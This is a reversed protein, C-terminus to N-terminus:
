GKKREFLSKLYRANEVAFGQFDNNFYVFVKKINKPFRGIDEKLGEIEKKSYKGQNQLSGHKRIYIFDATFVNRLIDPKDSIVFAIKHKKLIQYIEEELWSSDRFEIASAPKWKSKEIVENYFILFDELREANKKFNPPLQILVVALKEELKQINDLFLKLFPRSKSDLILRKRHTIYGNMKVSFIFNASSNKRWASFVEAHPMRYFSSNIEVTRFERSYYALNNEKINKPYFKESWHKYMWGSTGINIEKRSM